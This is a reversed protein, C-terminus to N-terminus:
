LISAGIKITWTGSTINATLELNNSTVNATFILGGTSSGLDETSTDTFEATNATANWVVMVQGYRYGNTATNIVYYNFAAGVGNTDPMSFVVFTSTQGTFYGSLTKTFGTSNVTFIPSGSLDGVELINGTITDTVQFLQGTSGLINVAVGTAGTASGLTLTNGDFTLNSEANAANSTGDSTL